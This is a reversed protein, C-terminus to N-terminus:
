QVRLCSPPELSQVLLEGSCWFADGRGGCQNQGDQGDVSGAAAQVDVASDEEWLSLGALHLGLIIKLRANGRSELSRASDMKEREGERTAGSPKKERRAFEKGM